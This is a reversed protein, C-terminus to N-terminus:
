SPQTQFMKKTNKLTVFQQLETARGHPVTRHWFFVIVLQPGAAVGAMVMVVMRVFVRVIVRVIVFVAVFM